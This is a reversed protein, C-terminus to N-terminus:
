KKTIEFVAGDYKKDFSVKYGTESLEKGTATLVLKRGPAKRVEYVATSDLNGVFVSCQTENAGQRFVGVLGGSNTESNIRQFGDWCGEAPEGFGALDQRFSM